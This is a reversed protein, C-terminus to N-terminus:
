AGPTVRVVANFDPIGSVKSRKSRGLLVNGEPWHVQLNGPAIPARFVKGTFRGFDNSLTVVAGDALGLRDADVPSMLVAERGAGTLRDRQEYVLSNFQKGRRTAVRFSGDPVRADPLPVVGFAAKGSATPFVWGSCLRPGGYQVMDGQKALTEIGQYFPVVRAIEQRIAPTGSYTLAAALGPRVRRALELLVDGEPRAGDALTGVRPGPVEPSFIIRRETSTQTVGGPVEYRTTAPLVLVVGDGDPDVLMQRTLVLDHHVRLPVKRLAAEVGAPDPLVELWNGGISWLVDLAGEGAADIMEPATLGPESPVDFGWAAFLEAAHEPTVSKGGPFSTAYCGMEAGGQVGSHGRIPMLGSGEQGVHGRLLALNVIQRVGDEGHHHQTIGMSWVFVATRAGGVLAGFAEMEARTAGSRRELESWPHSALDAALAEFGESHGAIFSTDTLGAAIMHKMAGAVFAIDGGQDVMFVDTALKTGFLASEVISPIWYREMGPERVSNVLAVRTGAKRAAYLYKTAVPQNNAVNSGFFVILDTGIWDAYSCTSAGVGISDKLAYTSPAHCIRAANDINNSGIARVAKQAAYYTENPIGRATLYVGVRSPPTRGVHEAVLALADDWSIPTFGAARGRRIYPRPIRGLDRLEDSRLPRLPGLDALLGPDFAPQTNLRLLRLRINCLHVGKLTWDRMGTTGLACGDCVGTKLIRWAYKRRGKSQRWARFLEAFNNPHELGLGFPRWSAWLSPRWLRKPKRLAM